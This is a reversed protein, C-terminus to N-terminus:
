GQVKYKTHRIRKDQLRKLKQETKNNINKHRKNM